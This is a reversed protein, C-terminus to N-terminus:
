DGLRVPARDLEARARGAAEDHAHRQGPAVAGDKVGVKNLPVVSIVTSSGVGSRARPGSRRRTHKVADASAIVAANASAREPMAVVRPATRGSPWAAAIAACCCRM